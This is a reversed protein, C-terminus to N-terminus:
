TRCSPSRSSRARRLVGLGRRDHVGDRGPRVLRRRSRARAVIEDLELLAVLAAAGGGVGNFLAVMQPMQTMQVRDARRLRRRRHRGRDRGPDPRRQGDRPLLVAARLRRGGRRRRDPQRGPPGRGPCGRSPSSSAVACVLYVLQAWTPIVSRGGERHPRPSGARSCRCCGTPSWSAASWTSRPSCSRSWGSASRARRLRARHRHDRRAPDRRPDRQGGVDAAHAADLLGELDGRHGVFVSLVFITLWVVPESMCPKEKWGRPGPPSTCSRATAPSAPAPSSRTRPTPPSRRRRGRRRHATM